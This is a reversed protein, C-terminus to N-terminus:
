FGTNESLESNKGFDECIYTNPLSSSCVFISIYVCESYMYVCVYIYMFYIYVCM